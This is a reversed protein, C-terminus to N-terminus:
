IKFSTKLANSIDTALTILYNSFLNLNEFFGTFQIFYRRFDYKNKKKSFIM